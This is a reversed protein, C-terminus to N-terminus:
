LIGSIKRSQILFHYVTPNLLVTESALYGPSLDCRQWKSSIYGQVLKDRRLAEM